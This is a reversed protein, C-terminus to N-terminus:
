TSVLYKHVVTFECPLASDGRERASGRSRDYIYHLPHSCILADYIRAVENFDAIDHGFWTIVWSLCFFSEM